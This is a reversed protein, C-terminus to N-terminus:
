RDAIYPVLHFAKFGFERVCRRIENPMEEACDAPAIGVPWLRDEHGSVLNAVWNNYKRCMAAALQGPATAPLRIGTPFMLQHNIGEIDMDKLRRDMDYGGVGRDANEVARPYGSTPDSM